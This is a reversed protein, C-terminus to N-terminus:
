LLFHGLGSRLAFEWHDLLVDDGLLGSLFLRLFDFLVFLAVLLLGLLLDLPRGPLGDGLLSLGRLWRRLASLFQVHSM